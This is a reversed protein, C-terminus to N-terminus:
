SHTTSFHFFNYGPSLDVSMFLKKINKLIEPLVKDLEKILSSSLDFLKPEILNSDNNSNFDILDYNEIDISEDKEILKKREFWRDRLINLRKIDIHYLKLWFADEKQGNL